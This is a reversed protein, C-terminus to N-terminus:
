QDVKSLTRLGPPNISVLNKKILNKHLSKLCDIHSFKTTQYCEIKGM